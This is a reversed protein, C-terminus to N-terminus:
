FLFLLCCCCYGLVTARLPMRDYVIGMVTCSGACLLASVILDTFCDGEYGGCLGACGGHRTASDRCFSVHRSAGSRNGFPQMVPRDRHRACCVLASASCTAANCGGAMLRTRFTNTNTTRLHLPSNAPRWCDFRRKENVRNPMACCDAAGLACPMACLLSCLLVAAASLCPFCPNGGVKCESQSLSIWITTAGSGHPAHPTHSCHVSPIFLPTPSATRCVDMETLQAVPSM